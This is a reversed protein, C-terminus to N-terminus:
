IKDFWDPQEMSTVVNHALAEGTTKSQILNNANRYELVPKLPIRDKRFPMNDTEICEPVMLIRSGEIIPLNLSTPDQVQLYYIM